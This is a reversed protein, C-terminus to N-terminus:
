SITKIWADKRKMTEVWSCIHPFEKLCLGAKKYVWIQPFFSIDCLSLHNSALYAHQQLQKELIPLEKLVRRELKAAYDKDTPLKYKPCWYRHWALNTLSIGLHINTYDIWQDIKAREVLDQPYIHFAELAQAIYRSITLSESLKVKGWVLVPVRSFPTLSQFESSNQEGHEFSITKRQYPLGLEELLFVVRQSYPSDAHSYLHMM